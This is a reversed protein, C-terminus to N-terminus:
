KWGQNKIVENLHRTITSDMWRSFDSLENLKVNNEGSATMLQRFYQFTLKVDNLIIVVDGNEEQNVAFTHIKENGETVKKVINLVFQYNEESSFGNYKKMVEIKKLKQENM